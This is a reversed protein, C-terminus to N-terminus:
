RLDEMGVQWDSLGSSFVSEDFGHETLKEIFTPPNAPVARGDPGPKFIEVAQHHTYTADGKTVEIVESVFRYRRGTVPDRRSSLHVILDIHQKVQEYAQYMDLGTGNLLTAIRDITDVASKAHITSLSGAGSRMAAFMAGIEDGRVEGVVVRDLNLRLMDPFLDHMTLEGAARGSVTIEGSGPRAEVPVPPRLRDGLQDLYLEFETEMTGISEWPPIARALGRLCTTKGAGMAGSVVISCRAAVAAILFQALVRDVMGMAVLNQPPGIDFPSSQATSAEHREDVSVNIHRHM